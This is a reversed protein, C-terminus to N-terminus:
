SPPSPSTRTSATARPASRRHRQGLGHRLPSQRVPRERDAHVRGGPVPKTRPRPGDGWSIPPTANVRAATDLPYPDCGNWPFPMSRARPAAWDVDWCPWGYGRDSDMNYDPLVVGKPYPQGLLYPVAFTM